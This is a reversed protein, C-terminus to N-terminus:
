KARSNLLKQLVVPEDTTIFDVEDNILEKMLGEEDVTWVNVTLGLKKAEPIWEPHKKFVNYHYDLGSFGLDKLEKPSLEGNLYAVKAKPAVRILEKGADLSFTIYETKKALKKNNIMDVVMRAAERNREPTAHVKLEFILKTNKLTKAKDLYQELTPLTEGNPLKMDKIQDYTAKQINVGQIDNDHHVVPVNDATLHVDFESGYAKIQDALELSRISNQASGETKWYGRHAIVKTKNKAVAPLAMLACLLVIFTTKLRM